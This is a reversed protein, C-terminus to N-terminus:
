AGFAEVVELIVDISESCREAVFQDNMMYAYIGLAYIWDEHYRKLNRAARAFKQLEESYQHEIEEPTEKETRSPPQKKM